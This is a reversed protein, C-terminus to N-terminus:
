LFILRIKQKKKFSRWTSWYQDSLKYSRERIAYYTTTKFKRETWVMQCFLCFTIESLIITLSTPTQTIKSYFQKKKKKQCKLLMGHLENLM